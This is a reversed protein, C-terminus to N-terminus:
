LTNHVGDFDDRIIQRGRSIIAAQLTSRQLYTSQLKLVRKEKRTERKETRSSFFLIRGRRRRRRPALPSLFPLAPQVPFQSCHSISVPIYSILRADTGTAGNRDFADFAEMQEECIGHVM